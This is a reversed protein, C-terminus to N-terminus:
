IKVLIFKEDIQLFGEVLANRAWFVDDYIERMVRGGDDHLLAEILPEHRHRPLLPKIDDAIDSVRLDSKLTVFRRRDKLNLACLVDRDLRVSERFGVIHRAPAHTKYAAVFLEYCRKFLDFRPKIVAHKRRDM